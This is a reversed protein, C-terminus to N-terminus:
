ASTMVQIHLMFGCLVDPFHGCCTNALLLGYQRGDFSSRNTYTGPKAVDGCVVRQALSTEM